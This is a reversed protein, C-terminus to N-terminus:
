INEKLLKENIKRVEGAGLTVIVDGTRQYRQIFSYIADLSSIYQASPQFQRIKKVLDMSDIAGTQERASAFVPAIIVKDAVLFSSAFDNMLAATRSFTHPQFIAWIRRRPYLQRLTALTTKIATPHHAYDDIYILGNKEGLVQLRKELGSFKGVATKIKSLPINLYNAVILAATANTFNHQGALGSKIKEEQNGRRIKLIFENTSQPVIQYDAGQYCGYTIMRRDGCRQILRRCWPYDNNIIILGNRKVQTAFKYFARFIAQEDQYIDPHDLEISTIVAISPAFDWFKPSPDQNSKRYEDAEIIFYDDHSYHGPLDLQNIKAEGIIYSPDFGGQILTYAIWATTTTKGHIGAVAILKKSAVEEALFDTSSLINIKKQRAFKLETNKEDYAASVIIKDPQFNKINKAAFVVPEIGVKKLAADTSFEEAVDSGGVVYGKEKAYIALPAMGQGKIGIFYLREPKVM